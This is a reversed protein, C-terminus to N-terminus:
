TNVFENISDIIEKDNDGNAYLKLLKHIIM